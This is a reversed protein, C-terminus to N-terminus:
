STRYLLDYVDELVFEGSLLTCVVQELDGGFSFETKGAVKGVRGQWVLLLYM